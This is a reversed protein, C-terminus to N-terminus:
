PSDTGMSSTRARTWLHPCVSARGVPRPPSPTPLYFQNWHDIRLHSGCWPEGCAPQLGEARSGAGEGTGGKAEGAGEM